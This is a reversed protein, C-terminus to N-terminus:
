KKLLGPIVEKAPKIEREYGMEFFKRMVVSLDKEMYYFLKKSGPKKKREIMGLQELPKLKNSVSALCYGTTKALSEMSISEPELYLISILKSTLLDFGMSRGVGVGFEMWEKELSM